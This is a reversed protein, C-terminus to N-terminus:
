EGKEEESQGMIHFKNNDSDFDIVAVQGAELNIKKEFNYDFNSVDKTDRMRVTVEHTGPAIPIEEYAFTSGDGSLGTPHYVRSLINRRDLDLEVYSPLRKRACDMRMRSYPSNTKRMHKLKSETEKETIEKCDEQKGSHQFTFKILANDKSYFPYTPKTSLFSILFAPLLLLPIICLAAVKKYTGEGPIMTEIPRYARVSTKQELEKQFLGIKNILDKARLPSLRYSRIRSYDSTTGKLPLVVPAREGMLRAHSWRSGERYYCEEIQCGSVFVGEAGSALAYEITSHHIMGSCVFTIVFVNPMGKLSKNEANIFKDLRINKECVLGLIKPGSGQKQPLNLLRTIEKETQELTRDPLDAAKSDCSGVCIGCSACRNVLVEAQLLYPRGDKRPVMRIAEYPCDKNCQECGVCKELIVQAAPPKRFRGIWPATFLLLAGSASTFWFARKSLASTLPYVFLFFWDFPINIPLKALDAMPANTAPVIFSLASLVIVLAVSIARPPKLVPRANRSTHIFVLASIGILSIGIHGLLLVFFLMKSITDGSLFSRSPPEVFIPIDNLLQATKQAILQARGDWVLWYGMIGLILCAVLLAAGSVWSLWRWQRYRGLLFERVLHLTMFLILGDSAYRHISRLYGGIYWQNVTLYQVSEYPAGTKYFLFLYSGTILILMLSVFCLTGLWYLPNYKPPIIRDTWGDITHVIRRGLSGM